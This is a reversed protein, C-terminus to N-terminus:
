YYLLELSCLFSTVFFIDVNKIPHCTAPSTNAMESQRTEGTMWPKDRPYVTVKKFPFFDKATALFLETWNESISDIDDNSHVLDHLNLDDIALRLGTFDGKNLDWLDRSYPSSSPIYKNLKCYPMAHNSYGLPPLVGSEQVFGPSDTIILDLINASTTTIYTPDSILQVMNFANVLDYLQLRLESNQHDGEWNSCRDNFDGVLMVCEFNSNMIQQISAQLHAIFDDTQNRSQGPPRYCVGILYPRPKLHLEIWIIEQEPHELDTRRSSVLNTSVYAAVGGGLTTRNRHFFNYGDIHTDDDSETGNLWTETIGIFDFKHQHILCTSLEDMKYTSFGTNRTDRPLLSQVNSHCINLSKPGPNSEIDGSLSLRNAPVWIETSIIQQQMM